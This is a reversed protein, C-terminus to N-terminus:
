ITYMRKYVLFVYNTYYQLDNFLIVFRIIHKVKYIINTTSTYIYTTGCKFKDM